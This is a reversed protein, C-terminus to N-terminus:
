LALALRLGDDIQAMRSPPVAGIRQGLQQHDIASVQTINAVSDRDLGTEHAALVVNGPHRAYDLNSYVPVVIVTNIRSDNFRDSSVIVGPRLYGSASGIPVGLDLWWIEGRSVM